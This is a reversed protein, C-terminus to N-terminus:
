YDTNSVYKYTLLMTNLEEHMSQRQSRLGSTHKVEHDTWLPRSATSKGLPGAHETDELGRIQPEDEAYEEPLTPEELREQRAHSPAEAQNNSPKDAEDSQNSEEAENTRKRKYTPGWNSCDCTLGCKRQIKYGDTSGEILKPACLKDYDADDRGQLDDPLKIRSYTSTLVLPNLPQGGVVAQVDVALHYLSHMEPLNSPFIGFGEHLNEDLHTYGLKRVLKQLSQDGAARKHFNLAHLLIWLNPRGEEREEGPRLRTHLWAIKQAVELESETTTRIDNYNSTRIHRLVTYLGAAKSCFCVKLEPILKFLGAAVLDALSVQLLPDDEPYEVVGHPIYEHNTKRPHLGPLDRQCEWEHDHYVGVSDCLDNASWFNAPKYEQSELQEVHWKEPHVARTRNIMSICEIDQGKLHRLYLHVTAFLYSMTWSLLEDQIMPRLEQLPIDSLSARIWSTEDRGKRSALDKVLHAGPVFLTPTTFGNTHKRGTLTSSRFMIIPAKQSYKDLESIQGADLLGHKTKSMAYNRHQGRPRREIYARDSKSLPQNQKLKQRITLALTHERKKITEITQSDLTQM